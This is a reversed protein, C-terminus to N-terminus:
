EWIQAEQLTKTVRGAWDRNAAPSAPSPHLIQIVTQSSDKVARLKQAAFAGVGVLYSAQLAALIARLHEDCAQYLQETQAKALTNPTINRGSSHVFALPCYNLVFHNKFFLEATGFRKQFLGWLRRGSVESRRCAFGEVPRKPHLQAPVDVQGSIELWGRVAAIEGFPIGCQVMGFPGPNMGLFVVRKATAGYRQVYQKYPAFAYQLPNYVYAVPDTFQLENCRNKLKEAELLISEIRHRPSLSTKKEKMSELLICDNCV